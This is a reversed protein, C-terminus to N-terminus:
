GGNYAPNSWWPGSVFPYSPNDVFPDDSDGQTTAFMNGGPGPGQEARQMQTPSMSDGWLDGDNESDCACLLALLLVPTGAYMYSRSAMRFSTRATRALMISTYETVACACHAM